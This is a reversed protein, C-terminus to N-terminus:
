IVSFGAEPDRISLSDRTSHRSIKPSNLSKWEASSNEVNLDEERQRQDHLVMFQM